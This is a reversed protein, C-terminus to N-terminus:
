PITIRGLCKSSNPCKSADVVRFIRRRLRSKLYVSIKLYTIWRRSWQWLAVLISSRDMYDPIEMKMMEADIRGTLGTWNKPPEDLIFIVKLSGNQEQMEEFERSFLIDM